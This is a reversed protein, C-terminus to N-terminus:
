FNASVKPKTKLRRRQKAKVVIIVCITKVWKHTNSLYINIWFV